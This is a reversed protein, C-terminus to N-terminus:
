REEGVPKEYRLNRVKPHDIEGAPRLVVRGTTNRQGDVAKTATHDDHTSGRRRDVRSTAHTGSLKDARIINETSRNKQRQVLFAGEEKKKNKTRSIIQPKSEGGSAPPTPLATITNPKVNM